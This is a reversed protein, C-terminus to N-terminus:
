LKPTLYKIVRNETAPICLNLSMLICFIIVCRLELARAM